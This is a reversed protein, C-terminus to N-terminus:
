FRWVETTVSFPLGNRGAELEVFFAIFGSSPKKVTIKDDKTPPSAEWKASQFNKSESVATWLIKKSEPNKTEILIQYQSDQEALTWNWQPLENGSAVSKAFAAASDLLKLFSKGKDVEHEENPLTLLYKKGQIDNWYYKTADVPWYPDNSGHILLKPVDIRSLYSYPDIVKLLNVKYPSPIEGKKFLGRDTYDHIRPSFDGWTEIHGELQKLL